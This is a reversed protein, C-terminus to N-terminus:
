LISEYVCKNYISVTMSIEYYKFDLNEIKSTFTINIKNLEYPVNASVGFSIICTCHYREGLPSPLFYNFFFVINLYLM